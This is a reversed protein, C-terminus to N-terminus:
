REKQRFTANPLLAAKTIWREEPLAAIAPWTRGCAAAALLPPPREKEGDDRRLQWRRAKGEDTMEDELIPATRAQYTALAVELAPLHAEHYLKVEREQGEVSRNTTPAAYDPFREAMAKAADKGFVKARAVAAWEKLHLKEQLPLRLSTSLPRGLCESSRERGLLGTKLQDEVARRTRPSLPAGLSRLAEANAQITLARERRFAEHTQTTERARVQETM